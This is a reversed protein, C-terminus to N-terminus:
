GTDNRQPGFYHSVIAGIIPGAIAWVTIAATYNGTVLGYGGAVGVVAVTTVAFVRALFGRTKAEVEEVSGFDTGIAPQFPKGRQGSRAPSKDPTVGNMRKREPRIIEHKSVLWVVLPHCFKRGRRPTL